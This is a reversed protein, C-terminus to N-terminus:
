YASFIAELIIAGMAPSFVTYFDSPTNIHKNSNQSILNMVQSRNIHTICMYM